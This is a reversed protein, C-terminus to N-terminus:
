HCVQAEWNLFSVHEQEYIEECDQEDHEEAVSEQQVQDNGDESGDVTLYACMSM